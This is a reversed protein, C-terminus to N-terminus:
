NHTTWWSLRTPVATPGGLEGGDECTFWIIQLPGRRRPFCWNLLREPGAGGGSRPIGISGDQLLVVTVELSVAASKRDPKFCERTSDCHCRCCNKRRRETSRGTPALTDREREREIYM